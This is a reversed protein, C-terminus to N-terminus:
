DSWRYNEPYIEDAYAGQPVVGKLSSKYMTLQAPENPMWVVPLQRAMFDEYKFLAAIEATRTPASDTAVIESDATANSYYGGNYAAGTKFSLDGSPWYNPWYDFPGGYNALQWGNCPTKPTCGNFVVGLITFTPESTMVLDIGAESKLTSQMAQMENTTELSGSAYLM